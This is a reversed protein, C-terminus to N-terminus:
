KCAPRNRDEYGQKFLEFLMPFRPVLEASSMMSAYQLKIAEAIGPTAAITM